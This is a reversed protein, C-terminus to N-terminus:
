AAPILSFSSVEPQHSWSIPGLLAISVSLYKTTQQLLKPPHEPEVPGVLMLGSVFSLKPFSKGATETM